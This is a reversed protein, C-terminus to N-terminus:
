SELTAEHFVSMSKFNLATNSRSHIGQINLYAFDFIRRQVKFVWYFNEKSTEVTSRISYCYSGRDSFM